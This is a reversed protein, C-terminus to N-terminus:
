DEEEYGLWKVADSVLRFKKVTLWWIFRIQGTLEGETHLVRRKFMDIDTKREREQVARM